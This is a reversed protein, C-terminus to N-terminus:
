TPECARRARLQAEDMAAVCARNMMEFRTLAAAEASKHGDSWGISYFFLAGAIVVATFVLESWRIM